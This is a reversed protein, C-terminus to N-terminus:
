LWSFLLFLAYVAMLALGEKRTIRPKDNTLFINFLWLSVFLTIASLKIFPTMEISFPSILALLGLILTSNVAVSGIANGLTMESHKLFVSRIGFALEPITTGLAVILIGFVSLELNFFETLQRASGVIYSSAALLLVIGLLFLFVEKFIWYFGTFSKELHNLTKGLVKEMKWLRNLYWFYALILFLGEVREVLGDFALFIPFMAMAWILWADTKVSADRNEIGKSILAIFGVIFSVNLINAGIINGFSLQSTGALGSTLAVFLEPVSTAFGMLIFSIAYDSLRIFRAIRTLSRVLIRSSFALVLFAAIFGILENM